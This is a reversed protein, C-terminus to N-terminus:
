KMGHKNVSNGSSKAYKRRMMYACGLITGLGLILCGYLLFNHQMLFNIGAAPVTILVNLAAFSHTYSNKTNDYTAGEFCFWEENASLTYGEAASTEVVYYWQYEKEGGNGNGNETFIDLNSFTISGNEDTVKTEVLTGNREDRGSVKYLTFEAGALKKADEPVSGDSNIKDVKLVSIEGLTSNNEFIPTTVINNDTVISVYDTGVLEGAYYTPSAVLEGDNEESVVVQLIIAKNDTQYDNDSIKEETILYWYTGVSNYKLTTFEVKGNTSSNVSESVSSTDKTTVSNTTQSPLGQLTFTFASGTYNEDDLLKTVSPTVSTPIRENKVTITNGNEELVEDSFTTKTVYGSHSVEEIKYKVGVPIKYFVLNQAQSVYGELGYDEYTGDCDIDLWLKIKFQNNDDIIVNGNEDVVNKVIRIPAVKPTNVYSLKLNTSLLTDNSSNINQFVAKKGTGSATTIGTTIDTVTWTTDYKIGSQKHTSLVSYEGSPLNYTYKSVTSYYDSNNENTSKEDRWHNVQIYNTSSTMAPFKVENFVSGGSKRGIYFAKNNGSSDKETPYYYITEGDVEYSYMKNYTSSGEFRIVPSAGNNFFWSCNSSKGNFFICDSYDTSTVLTDKPDGETVRLYNDGVLFQDNFFATDDDGLTAVNGNTKANYVTDTENYKYKKDNEASFKYYEDDYPYTNSEIAFGFDDAKEVQSQIKENVNSVDVDKEMELSNSIPEFNFGVKLNSEIMGREMYFVTLTHHANTNNNDFKSSGSKTTDSSFLEPFSASYGFGSVSTDSKYVLNNKADSAQYTTDINNVYSKMKSFNICGESKKHDGGMDLVLVGDLYVWLDDDGSFNFVTDKGNTKGDAGLTFDIDLRMGFGFDYAKGNHDSKRDFPFFGPADNETSFGSLADDVAYNKGSGYNMSLYGGNSADYYNDFYCNDTGGFSDFEYYDQSNKTTKRMPFPSSVVTGYGNNVLWDEDFFPMSVGNKSLKKNDALLVDALGAVSGNMTSTTAQSNNPRIKFNQLASTSYGAYNNSKGNFDGFYLPTSWNNLVSYQGIARNFKQYPERAKNEDGSKVTRYFGTLSDRWTGDVEEDTYYDFFTGNVSILETDPTNNYVENYAQYKHGTGGQTVGGTGLNDMTITLRSDSSYECYMDITVLTTGAPVVFKMNAADAQDTLGTVTKSGTTFEAGSSTYYVNNSNVVKFEYTAEGTLQFSGTYHNKDKSESSSLKFDEDITWNKLSDSKMNGIIYYDLDKTLQGGVSQLNSNAGTESVNTNVAVASICSIVIMFILTFATLTKAAVKSKKDIM